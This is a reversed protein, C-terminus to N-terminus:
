FDNQHPLTICYHYFISTLLFSFNFFDNQLVALKTLRKKCTMMQCQLYLGNPPGLNVGTYVVVVFRIVSSQCTFLRVMLMASFNAM